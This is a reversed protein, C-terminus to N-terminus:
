QPPAPKDDVRSKKDANCVTYPISLATYIGVQLDPYDYSILAQVGYSLSFGGGMIPPRESHGIIVM